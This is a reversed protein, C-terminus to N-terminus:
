DQSLFSFFHLFAFGFFVHLSPFVGELGWVFCDISVSEDIM